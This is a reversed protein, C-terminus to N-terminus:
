SMNQVALILKSGAAQQEHNQAADADEQTRQRLTENVPEDALAGHVDGDLIVVACEGPDLFPEKFLFAEASNAAKIHVGSQAASFDSKDRSRATM